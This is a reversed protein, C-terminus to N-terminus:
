LHKHFFIDSKDYLTYALRHVFADVRACFCVTQRKRLAPHKNVKVGIRAAPNSLAVQLFIEAGGVSRYRAYYSAHAAVSQDRYRRVGAVPAGFVYPQLVRFFVVHNGGGIRFASSQGIKDGVSERVFFFGIKKVIQLANIM